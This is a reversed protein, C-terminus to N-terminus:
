GWAADADEEGAGEAVEALLAIQQHATDKGRQARLQALAKDFQHVDVQAPADGHLLGLTTLHQRDAQRLDIAGAGVEDAHQALAIAPDWWWLTVRGVQDFALGPQLLVLAALADGLQLDQVADQVVPAHLTPGEEVEASGAVGTGPAAIVYGRRRFVALALGVELAADAGAGVRHDAVPVRLCQGPPQLPIQPRQEIGFEGRGRHGVGELALGHAVLGIGRGPAPQVQAALTVLRLERLGQFGSLGADQDFPSGAAALARQQRSAM